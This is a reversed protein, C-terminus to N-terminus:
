ADCAVFVRTTATIADAFEAWGRMAKFEPTELAEPGALEYVTM